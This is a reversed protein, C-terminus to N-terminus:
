KRKTVFAIGYDDALECCKEIVFKEKNLNNVLKYPGSHYNSDHLCIIGDDSLFQTFRWDDLCQTVSHLGDIFIFDFKSINQKFVYDMISLINSSNNQITHINNNHDDLFIKSDLDVGFYYTDKDKNELFCYTSSDHANRCVGIELISSIKKKNKLEIFKEVINKRNCPSMEFPKKIGNEYFQEEADTIEDERFDKSFDNKIFFNVDTEINQLNNHYNIPKFTFDTM